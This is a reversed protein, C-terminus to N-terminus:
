RDTSDEEDDKGGNSRRDAALVLPEGALEARMNVCDSIEVGFGNSKFKQNCSGNRPAVM